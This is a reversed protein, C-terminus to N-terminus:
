VDALLNSVMEAVSLKSCALTDTPAPLVELKRSSRDAGAGTPPRVMANVELLGATAVTGGVTAKAAFAVVTLTGTVPPAAPEAVMWALAVFTVPAESLTATDALPPIM